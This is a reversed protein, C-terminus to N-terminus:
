RKEFVADFSGDGSATYSWSVEIDDFTDSQRGDAGSTSEVKQQLSAPAGTEDSVCAFVRLATTLFQGDGSILITEGEDELSIVNGGQADTADKQREEHEASCTEYAGEVASGGCGALAFPVVLLVGTLKKM